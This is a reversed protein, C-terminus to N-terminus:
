GPYNREFPRFHEEESLQVDLHCFLQTLIGPNRVCDPDSPAEKAIIEGNQCVYGTYICSGGHCHAEVYVFKLSPYNTTWALLESECEMVMMFQSPDSPNVDPMRLGIGELPEHIKRFVGGPWGKSPGVM